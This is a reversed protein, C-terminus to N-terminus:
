LSVGRFTTATPCLLPNSVQAQACQLHDFPNAVHFPFGNSEGNTTTNELSILVKLALEIVSLLYGALFLSFWQNSFMRKEM